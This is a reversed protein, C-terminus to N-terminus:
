EGEALKELASLAAEACSIPISEGIRMADAMAEVLKKRSRADLRLLLFKRDTRRMRQGYFMEGDEDSSGTYLIVAPRNKM